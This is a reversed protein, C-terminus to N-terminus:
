ESIVQRVVTTPYYLQLEPLSLPTCPLALMQGGHMSREEKGLDAKGVPQKISSTYLDVLKM